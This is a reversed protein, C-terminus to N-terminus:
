PNLIHMNPDTARAAEINEQPIDYVGGNSSLVRHHGDPISPFHPQGDARPALPAAPTKPEEPTKTGKGSASTADGVAAAPKEPTIAATTFAKLINPHSEAVDLVKPDLAAVRQVAETVKDVPPKVPMSAHKADLLRKKFEDPVSLPTLHQILEDPSKSHFADWLESKQQDNITPEGALVPAAHDMFPNPTTSM